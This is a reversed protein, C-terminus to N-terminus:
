VGLLAAVMDHPTSLRGSSGLISAAELENPSFVDCSSVVARLMEGGLPAAAPCFPEVACLGGAARTATQMRQMLEICPTNPNIGLAMGRAARFAAPLTDFSPRLMAYLADNAPTRWVQTRRGDQEFLQWARPTAAHPIRELAIDSCDM